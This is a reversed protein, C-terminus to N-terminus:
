GDVLGESRLMDELGDVLVDITALSATKVVARVREEMDRPLKRCLEEAFQVLRKEGPHPQENVAFLIDFYSAVLATVRHNVSVADERELALEIQHRYSSMNRRLIPFNKAVIARKLEPPYPANAREQIAEFWRVRDFLARSNGVNYWFCTSYGVSAEHRRLVRDLQEEMWPTTRFMVDVSIGTEPDIWEDGSEWFSNGIEAQKAGRAVEARRELPVPASSYVYLDVDSRTDVFTSMRSGAIAVAEVERIEAYRNALRQALDLATDATSKM